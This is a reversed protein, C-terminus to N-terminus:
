KARTYTIRFLEVDSVKMAFTRRGKDGHVTVLTAKATTGDPATMDGSLTLTKTAPDYAGEAVLPTPSASDIWVCVYKRRAPDYSTAGRGEYAHGCFDAKVHELLWQGGLGLACSSSGKNGDSFALDFDGASAALIEHGPAPRFEPCEEAALRAAALAAVGVLAAVGLRANLITRM